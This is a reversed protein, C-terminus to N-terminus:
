GEDQPLGLVEPSHDLLHDEGIRYFSAMADPSIPVALDQHRLAYDTFAGTAEYVRFFYSGDVASKCLFGSAGNASRVEAKKHGYRVSAISPAPKVFQKEFLREAEGRGADTLVVSKAKNVPDDIFGKKHLRGLADWDMSKWARAREHLSLYLLGLVAEDIKQLDLEM